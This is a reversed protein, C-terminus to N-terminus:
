VQSMKAYQSVTNRRTKLRKCSYTMMMLDKLCFLKEPHNLHHFLYQPVNQAEPYQPKLTPEDTVPSNMM